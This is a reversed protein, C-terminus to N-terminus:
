RIMSRNYLSMLLSRSFILLLLMHIFFISHRNFSIPWNRNEKAIIFSYLHCPFIFLVITASNWYMVLDVKFSLPQLALYFLLKSRDWGFLLFSAHLFFFQAEVTWRLWIWYLILVLNGWELSWDPFFASVKVVDYAYGGHKLPHM